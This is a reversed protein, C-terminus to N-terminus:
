KFLKQSIINKQEENLMDLISLQLLEHMTFTIDNEDSALSKIKNLSILSYKGLIALNNNFQIEDLILINSSYSKLLTKPISKTNLLSCYVLLDYAELSEKKIESIILSLTTFVTFQYNDFAAHNSLSRNEEAWLKDRNYLFLDRYEKITLGPHSKIYSGAQAVALPYDGLINSLGDAASQDNEQTIKLLLEISESRKFKELKMTHLWSSPNKSTIIIHGKSKNHKDPIYKEIQNRDTVNDFILLWNLNTTRLKDKIQTMIEIQPLYLNIQQSPNKHVKNWENAIKIFQTELNKGVDLWWIIQYNGKKSEAFKKALQTKGIGASGVIAIERMNKALNNNIEKIVEVRGVYYENANQVNWILPFKQSSYCINPILSWCIFCLFISINKLHYWM